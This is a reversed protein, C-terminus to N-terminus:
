AEGCDRPHWAAGVALALRCDAVTDTCADLTTAMAEDLVACDAELADIRDATEDTADDPPALPNTINMGVVVCAGQWHAYRKRFRRRRRRLAMAREVHVTTREM